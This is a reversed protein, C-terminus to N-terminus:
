SESESRPKASRLEARAAEFDLVMSQSTMNGIPRGKENTSHCQKAREIFTELDSETYCITRGIKVFPLHGAQRAKRLTKPCARVIAAAEQESILAPLTM